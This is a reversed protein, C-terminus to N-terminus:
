SVGVMVSYDGVVVVKSDAPTVSAQIENLGPELSDESYSLAVNLSSAGVSALNDQTTWVTVTLDSEYQFLDNQPLADRSIEVTTKVLEKPTITVHAQTVATDAAIGNPLVVPLDFEFNENDFVQELNVSGLDIRNLTSVVDPSGSVKISSPEISVDVFDSTIFGFSNVNLVLPVEGVQRVGYSLRVSPTDATILSNKIEIGNEDVLTYALTTETTTKVTSVDFVAVASKITDLLKEPGRVTIADPTLVFNDSVFGDQLEGSLQLDVPISQSVVRDVEISITPTIKSITLDSISSTVQYKVDYVGPVTINSLDATVTLGGNESVMAIRESKGTVKFSVTSHSGDTIVLNNATLSETGLLDVAVRSYTQTMDPNTSSIVYLWLLVACALSLLKLMIDNKRLWDMM